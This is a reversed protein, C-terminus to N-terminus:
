KYYVDISFTMFSVVIVLPFMLAIRKLIFISYKIAGKNIYQMENFPNMSHNHSHYNKELREARLLQKIGGHSIPICFSVKMM